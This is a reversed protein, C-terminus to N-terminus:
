SIDKSHNVRCLLPPPSLAEFEAPLTALTLDQGTGFPANMNRTKRGTNYPFPYGPGWRPRRSPKREVIAQCYANARDAHEGM